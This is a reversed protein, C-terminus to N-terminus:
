NLDRVKGMIDIYKEAAIEAAVSMDKRWSADGTPLDERRFNRKLYFAKLDDNSFCFHELFWLRGELARSLRKKTTKSVTRTSWFPVDSVPPCQAPDGILVIGIRDFDLGCDELREMIQAFRTLGVMSVEDIILLKLHKLRDKIKM